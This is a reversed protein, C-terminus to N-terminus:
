CLARASLHSITRPPAISKGRTFFGLDGSKLRSPCVSSQKARAAFKEPSNAIDEKWQEMQRLTTEDFGKVLIHSARAVRLDIMREFSRKLTDLSFGEFNGQMAPLEARLYSRDSHGLQQQLAPAASLTFASAGGSLLLTTVTLLQMAVVASGRDSQASGRRRWLRSGLSFLTWFHIRSREYRRTCTIPLRTNAYKLLVHHAHELTWEDCSFKTTHIITQPEHLLFWVDGSPAMGLWPATLGLMGAPVCLESPILM